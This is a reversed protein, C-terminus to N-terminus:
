SVDGKNAIKASKLFSRWALVEALHARYRSSAKLDSIPELELGINEELIKRLRSEDRSSVGRLLEGTRTAGRLKDGVGGGFGLRAELIEEGNDIKLRTACNIIAWDDGTLAFKVFSSGVREAGDHLPMVIERVFEGPRLDLAFYGQIFDGLRVKRNDPSLIVCADLVLLAVPLDFFPFAACVAGGITAVNKVQLPQICVLADYLAGLEPRRDVKLTEFISSLSTYTGIRLVSEEIRTYSLHLQSIDILCEVESFLGRHAVEYIGTGGAIIRAREGRELLLKTIQSESTAVIYEKPKFSLSL